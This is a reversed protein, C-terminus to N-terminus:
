KEPQASIPEGRILKARDAAGLLSILADITKTARARGEAEDAGDQRYRQDLATHGAPTNPDNPVRRCYKSSPLRLQEKTLTHPCHFTMCLEESHWSMKCCQRPRPRGNDPVLGRDAAIM